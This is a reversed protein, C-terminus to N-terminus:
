GGTAQPAPTSLPADLRLVIPSGAPLYASKEKTGLAVASGAAAGAAAGLIAEKAGGGIVAGLVAGAGAGGGIKKLKGTMQSRTQPSTETLTAQLALSEGRVEITEFDLKIVAPNDDTAKQVATVRGSVRSGAPIVVYDGRIVPREMNATFPDGSQVSDVAIERNLTLRLETGAELTM